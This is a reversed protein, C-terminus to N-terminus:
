INFQIVKREGVQVGVEADGLEEAADGLRCEAMDNARGFVHGRFLGGAPRDVM